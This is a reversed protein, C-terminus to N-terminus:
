PPPPPPPLLELLELLELLPPPALLREEEWPPPAAAVAPDAPVYNVELCVQGLRPVRITVDQHTRLLNVLTLAWSAGPIPWPSPPICVQVGARLHSIPISATAPTKWDAKSLIVELEKPLVTM